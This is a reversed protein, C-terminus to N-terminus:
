WVCAPFASSPFASARVFNSQNRRRWMCAPFTPPFASARVSDSQDRRGWVCAPLSVPLFHSAARSGAVHVSQLASATPAFHLSRLDSTTPAFHLYRLDSTTPAFHLYRLDSTTPAFHLYRLSSSTPAFHVSRLNRHKVSVHPGMSLTNEQGAGLIPPSPPPPPPMSPPSGELLSELSPSFSCSSCAPYAQAVAAVAKPLPFDFAKIYSRVKQGCSQRGDALHDWVECGGGLEVIASPFSRPANLFVGAGVLDVTHASQMM